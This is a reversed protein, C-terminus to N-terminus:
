AREFDADLEDLPVDLVAVGRASAFTLFEHLPMDLLKAARGRSLAGQQFAGLVCAELVSRPIRGRERELYQTLETAAAPSVSRLIRSAPGPGFPVM